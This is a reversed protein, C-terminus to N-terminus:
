KACPSVLQRALQQIGAFHHVGQIQCPMYVCACICVFMCVLMHMGICVRVCMCVCVCVHMRVYVCACVCVRAHVCECMVRIVSKSSNLDDPAINFSFLALRGLYHDKYKYTVMLVGCNQHALNGM